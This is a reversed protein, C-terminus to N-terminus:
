PSLTTTRIDPEYRGPKTLDIEIESYIGEPTRRLQYPLKKLVKWIVKNDNHITAVLKQIGAIRAHETVRQLLVTGIGLNQMDDRISIAVEAQGSTLYVYRAAGIPVNGEDPLTAFAILGDNKEPDAQAIREAEERIMEPNPNDLSQMFRSYRSESGMHEFIKIFLPADDQRIHRLYIELGNKASFSDIYQQQNMTKGIGQRLADDLTPYCLGGRLDLAM